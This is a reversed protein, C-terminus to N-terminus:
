ELAIRAGLSVILPPSVSVLSLELFSRFAFVEGTRGSRRILLATEHRVHVPRRLQAAGFSAPIAVFLDNYVM